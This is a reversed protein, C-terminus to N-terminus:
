REISYCLIKDDERLYLRGGVIVPHAWSPRDGSGPVKFNAVEQFSDPNAKVLTMIGNSYRVYVHGDAGIVSASKKGAGRSKWKIEGTM